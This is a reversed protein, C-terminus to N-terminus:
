YKYTLLYGMTELTSKEIPSILPIVLTHGELSPPIIKRRFSPNYKELLKRPIGTEKAIQKFNKRKFVKTPQTLMENYDPYAPRLGYYMYYTFVYKVAIFKPVYLQTEEPLHKKLKWFDKSRAKRIAGDLRGPGCNYAAIALTWDQYKEFLDSLYHASAESAKHIDFREDVYNNIKLGYLRGTKPMFQWIGGAGVPSRAKPNLMSEVISLYKIEDPVNYKRIYEDFIPFYIASQGLVRETTQRGGYVFSNILKRITSNYKIDVGHELDNLRQIIVKKTYRPVRYNYRDKSSTYDPTPNNNALMPLVLLLAVITLNIRNM